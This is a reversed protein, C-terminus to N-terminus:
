MCTRADNVNLEVRLLNNKEEGKQEIKFLHTHQDTPRFCQRLLQDRLICGQGTDRYSM